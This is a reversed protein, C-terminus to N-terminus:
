TGEKPMNNSVERIQQCHETLYTRLKRYLDGGQLNAGGKQTFTISQKSPVTCYDYIATYLLIYYQWSM